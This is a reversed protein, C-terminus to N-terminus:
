RLAQELGSLVQEALPRVQALDAKGLTSVTLLLREGGVHFVVGLHRAAVDANSLTADGGFGAVDGLGQVREYDGETGSESASDTFVKRLVEDDSTNDDWETTVDTSLSPFGDTDYECERTLFYPSQMEPARGREGGESGRVTTGLHQEIAAAPLLGCLQDGSLKELAPTAQGEDATTTTDDAQSAGEGSACATLTLSAAVLAALLRTSRM